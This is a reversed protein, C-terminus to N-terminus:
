MDRAWTPIRSLIYNQVTEKRQGAEVEGVAEMVENFDFWCVERDEYNYVTLIRRNNSHIDEEEQIAAVIKVAEEYPLFEMEQDSM